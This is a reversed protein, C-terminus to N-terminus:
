IYEIGPNFNGPNNEPCGTWNLKKQYIIFTFVDDLKKPIYWFKNKDVFIAYYHIIIKFHPKMLIYLM